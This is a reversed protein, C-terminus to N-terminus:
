STFLVNVLWDVIRSLHLAQKESICGSQSGGCAAKRPSLSGQRSGRLATYGYKHTGAEDEKLGRTLNAPASDKRTLV